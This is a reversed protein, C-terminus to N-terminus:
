FHITTLKGNYWMCMNTICKTMCLFNCEINNGRERQRNDLRKSSRRKFQADHSGVKSCNRWIKLVEECQNYWISWYLSFYCKIRKFRLRLALWGGGILWDWHIWEGQGDLLDRELETWYVLGLEIVLLSIFTKGIDGFDDELEGLDFELISAEMDTRGCQDDLFKDLWVTSVLFSSNKLHWMKDDTYAFIASLDAYFVIIHM